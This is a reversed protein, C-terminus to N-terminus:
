LGRGKSLLSCIHLVTLSRIDCLMQGVNCVNDFLVAAAYVYRWHHSAAMWCKGFSSPSITQCHSLPEGRQFESEGSKM